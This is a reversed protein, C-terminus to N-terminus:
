PATQDPDKSYAMKIQIKQVCGIVAIYVWVTGDKCVPVHIQPPWIKWIRKVANLM